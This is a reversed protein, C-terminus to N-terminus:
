LEVRLRAVHLSLRSRQFLLPIAASIIEPLDQQRVVRVVPTVDNHFNLCARAAFLCRQKGAINQAHVLTKGLDLAPINFNLRARLGVQATDLVRLDGNACRM